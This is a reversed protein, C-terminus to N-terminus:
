PKYITKFVILILIQNRYNLQKLHDIQTHRKNLILHRKLINDLFLARLAYTEYINKHYFTMRM